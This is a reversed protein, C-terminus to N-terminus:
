RKPLPFAHASFLYSSFLARTRAGSLTQGETLPPLLIEAIVGDGANVPDNGSYRNTGVGPKTVEFWDPQIFM